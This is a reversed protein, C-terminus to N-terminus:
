NSSGESQKPLPPWYSHLLVDIEDQESATPLQRKEVTRTESDRPWHLTAKSIRVGKSGPVWCPRGDIIRYVWHRGDKGPSSKCTAANALSPCVVLAAIIILGAREARV